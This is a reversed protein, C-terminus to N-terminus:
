NAADQEGTDRLFMAVAELSDFPSAELPHNMRTVYFMAAHYAVFGLLAEISNKALTSDTIRWETASLPYFDIGQSHVPTTDLVTM